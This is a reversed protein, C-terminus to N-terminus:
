PRGLKDFIFEVQKITFIRQLDSYGMKRLDKLWPRLWVTLTETSIKYLKALESKSYAKISAEKDEM